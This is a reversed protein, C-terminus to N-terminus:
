RLGIGRTRRRPRVADPATPAPVKVSRVTTNSVTAVEARRVREVVKTEANHTGTRLSFIVGGVFLGCLRAFPLLHLKLFLFHGYLVTKTKEHKGVISLLGGIM